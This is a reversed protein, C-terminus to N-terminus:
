RYILMRNGRLVLDLKGSIIEAFLSICDEDRHGFKCQFIKKPQNLFSKLHPFYNEHVVSRIRPQSFDFNPESGRNECPKSRLSSHTRDRLPSFFIGGRSFRKKINIQIQSGHFIM